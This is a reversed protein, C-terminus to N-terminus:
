RVREGDQYLWEEVTGNPRRIVWNGEMKSDVYPGEAEEIDGTAYRWVWRGNREDDVYPGEAVNENAFRIVWHGNREGDVTPGEWVNGNAYRLFWHGNRIDDVMPGEQVNGNPYRFVWHGSRRGDQLRGVATERNGDWLWTVTGAGQALGGACEGTWTVTAGLALGPNWVYCGSQGSIEMWCAAGAPKGACTQDPRFM